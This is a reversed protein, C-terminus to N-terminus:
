KLTCIQIIPNSHNAYEELMNWEQDSITGHNLEFQKKDRSILNIFGQIDSPDYVNV